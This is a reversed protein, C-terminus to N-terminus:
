SGGFGIMFIELDFEYLTLYYFSFGMVPLYLIVNGINSNLAAM